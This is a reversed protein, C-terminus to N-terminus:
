RASDTQSKPGRRRAPGTARDPAAPPLPPAAMLQDLVAGSGYLRRRVLRFAGRFQPDRALHRAQHLSLGRSKAFVPLPLYDPTGPEVAVARPAAACIAAAQLLEPVTIGHREIVELLVQVGSM